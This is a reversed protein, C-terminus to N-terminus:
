VGTPRAGHEEAQTEMLDHARYPDSAFGAVLGLTEDDDRDALAETTSLLM